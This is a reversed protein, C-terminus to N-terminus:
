YSVEEMVFRIDVTNEQAADARNRYDLKVPDNETAKMNRVNRAQMESSTPTQDSNANTWVGYRYTLKSDYTSEGYTVYFEAGVSNVVFSHTGSTADGDPLARLDMEKVAYNSGTPAYIDVTVTEDAPVTNTISGDVRVLEPRENVALTEGSGRTGRQSFQPSGM